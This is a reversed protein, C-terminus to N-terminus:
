WYGLEKPKKKKGASGSNLHAGTAYALQAPTAKLAQGNYWYGASFSTIKTAKTLEEAAATGKAPLVHGANLLECLNELSVLMCGPQNRAATVKSMGPEKGVLLVDTRGSVSGAVRGGFSEIMARARAKGLDLGQGGGLQPFVGTLVVTKGALCNAAALGANPRPVIFGKSSPKKKKPKVVAVVASPPPPPPPASAAVPEEKKVKGKVKGPRRETPAPAAAIQERMEQHVATWDIETKVGGKVPKVVAGVEPEPEPRARAAAELAVRVEEVSWVRGPGTTTSKGAKEAAAYTARARKKGTLAAGKAPEEEDAETQKGRGRARTPRPDLAEDAAVVDAEAVPAVRATSTSAAWASVDMVRAVVIARHELSLEEFGCFVVENMALLAREFAVPDPELAPNPLGRHVKGPVRWCEAHSWRGYTGAVPDVSGVRVSNVPIKVAWDVYAKGTLKPGDPKPKSPRGRKKKPAPGEAGDGIVAVNSAATAHTIVPHCLEGLGFRCKGAAGSARKQPPGATFCSSRDTKALEVRYVPVNINERMEEYYGAPPYHAKAAADSAHKFATSTSSSQASSSAFTGITGSTKKDKLVDFAAQVARFEEESGGKDPHTALCMKHWARKVVKFEDELNEAGEFAGAPDDIGLTMLCGRVTDGRPARKQGGSGAKKKKPPMRSRFSTTVDRRALTDRRLDMM